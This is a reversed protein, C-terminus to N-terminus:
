RGTDVLCTKGTQLVSTEFKSDIGFSGTIKVTGTEVFPKIYLEENVSKLLEGATTMLDQLKWKNYKRTQTGFEDFFNRISQLTEEEIKSTICQLM